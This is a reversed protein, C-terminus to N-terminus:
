FLTNKIFKRWASNKLRNLGVFHYGLANLPLNNECCPIEKQTIMFHPINGLIAGIVGQDDWRHEWNRTKDEKQLEKIAEAFNFNPPLGFIGSNIRMGKPVKDSYKGHLGHIGEYILAHKTSAIYAEIKPCKNLLVVDNDFFLEHVNPYLRPPYLKWIENKPEYEIDLTHKQEYLEASIGEIKRVVNKDNYCIVRHLKPYLKRIASVSKFLCKLGLDSCPGITWRVVGCM